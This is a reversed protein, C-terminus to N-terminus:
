KTFWGAPIVEPMPRVLHPTLLVLERRVQRSGGPGDGASGRGTGRPSDGCGRSASGRGERVIEVARKADMPRDPDIEDDLTKGNFCAMSIFSWARMMFPVSIRTSCGHPHRQKVSSDNSGNPIRFM